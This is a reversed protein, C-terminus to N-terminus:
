PSHSCGEIRSILEAVDINHSNDCTVTRRREASTLSDAVSLQYTLVSPGAESQEKRDLRRRHLRQHIADEDAVVDVIVSTCECDKAVSMAEKRYASELFSADLIVNHGSRLLLRALEFLREYSRRNADESYIGKGVASHSSETEGVGFLRKREVDSRVRVAPLEAMLQGSVWTKGSGSLGHMIILVPSREEIKRTALAAYFLAEDLDRAQETSNSRETSRIVSVKARVLCRYVFFLNLMAVGAYDGSVELYRNLFHAALDNRGRAALDMVLFAIDCMVDIHRLDASFEICDFTTIGDALRVLNELHLDGHCDRVFGDDFRQGLLASCRRWEAESWNQLPGLVDADLQGDLATFNDDMFERTLRLVRSREETAVIEATGHRAAINRALERMDEASLNGSDLQHDLRLRQDFRRMWVAYEVIEGDGGFRPRGDKVTVPIADIYIDPAWRKNLRVEEDCFFKRRSLSGFDLFDLVVPKKIKYAFDGAVILWSIHTEILDIDTVPHRFAGEEMLSEVLSTDYDPQSYKARHM